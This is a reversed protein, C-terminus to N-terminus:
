NKKDTIEVKFKVVKKAESPLEYGDEALIQTVKGAIESPTFHAKVLYDNAGFKLAKEVDEKQGLNTLMVALVDKTEENSKIKKLVEFGDMGPMVVDLLVITPKNNEIYSIADLGSSVVDINYGLDKFKKVYMEVLFPDDEALLITIKKNLM